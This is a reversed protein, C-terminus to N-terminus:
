GGNMKRQLPFKLLSLVSALILRSMSTIKKRLHNDRMEIGTNISNADVSVNFKGNAPNQIDFTIEGQLDTFTGEVPLGFNKITFKIISGADVPKFTQAAMAVSFFILGTLLIFRLKM